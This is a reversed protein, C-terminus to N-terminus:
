PQNAYQEPRRADIVRINPDTLHDALWDTEALLEPNAYGREKVPLPQM